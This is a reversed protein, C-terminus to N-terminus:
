SGSFRAPSTSGIALPRRRAWLGTPCWRSGPGSGSAGGGRDRGVLRTSCALYRGDLQRDVERLLPEIVKGGQRCLALPVDDMLHWAWPIGLHQLAAMLGLGGVGVLNWVYAVDPRFEEVVEGLAHVNFASILASEAEILRSTM